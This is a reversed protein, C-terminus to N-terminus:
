FVVPEFRLVGIAQAIRDRHHDRLLRRGRCRVRDAQDLLSRIRVRALEPEVEDHGVHTLTNERLTEHATGHRSLRQWVVAGVLQLLIYACGCAVLVRKVRRPEARATRRAVPAPPRRRRTARLLRPKRARKRCRRIRSRARRCRRTSAPLRSATSARQRRPPKTDTASSAAGGCPARTRS